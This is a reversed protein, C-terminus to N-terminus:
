KNNYLSNVSQGDMVRVHLLLKDQKLKNPVEVEYEFPIMKMPCFDSIQKMKPLVSYVDKDNDYFEVKELVFCDSPNHGKLLVNRSGRVREIYEVNAYVEEDIADSVSENVKIKGQLEYISKGNVYIDYLGKDMIGVDIKELFPVVMEPCYPNEKESSLASIKIDIKDGKVEVESMPSRYCLNPLFGEVIVEVNDNSDFGDPSYIHSVPVMKKVPAYAGLALGGVMAIVIMKMLNKMEEEM